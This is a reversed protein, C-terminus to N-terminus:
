FRFKITLLVNISLAHLRLSNFEYRSIRPRPM